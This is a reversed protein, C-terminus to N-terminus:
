KKLIKQALDIAIGHRHAIVFLEYRQHELEGDPKTM